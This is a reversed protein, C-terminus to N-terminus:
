SERVWQARPTMPSRQPGLLGVALGQLRAEMVIRQPM